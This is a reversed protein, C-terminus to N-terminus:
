ILLNKINFIKYFVIEIFIFSIIGILYGAIVQQITHCNLEIRTYCIYFTYIILIICLITLPHNSNIYFNKFILKFKEKILNNNKDEIKNKSTLKFHLFIVFMAFYGAIQSHGSPFGYSTSLGPIISRDFFNDRFNSCNRAGDPRIGRGTIKKIIKIFFNDTTKPLGDGIINKFIIYKFVYNSGANIYFKLIYILSLKFNIISSTIIILILYNSFRKIDNINFDREM